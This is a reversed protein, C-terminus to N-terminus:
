RGGPDISENAVKFALNTAWNVVLLGCWIDDTANTLMRCSFPFDKFANMVLNLWTVRLM